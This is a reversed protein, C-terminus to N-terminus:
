KIMEKFEEESIIQVGLKNAKDLKSGAEEGALVYTTKKSVSSSTKGGFSEIIKSAEARKLTPLTGTLVFTMGSFRTDEVVNTSKMNVGAEKLKEILEKTSDSSFFEVVSEAMIKGFGDIQLIDDVSANMVLDIDKFYDAILKGAKAGIHRIGLAFILKSLDNNKSNNVSNIINNASTEKFGELSLIKNFDLNYIDYTKAIMGENVFTEIIAPGLGEIDMADRSCFHILNRLLQAPCEPNICRIAAEDEDRYVKEGCSPCVDPFKFVSNSNHENVCLVEPIIDGAKRVTVVDGIAIGKENIFDQNHLTARSVTTGALHVSELIATPTLVGTRGVAIEIDLLKTQKEEPPYKFAIAWKPYKATSGLIDRQSFDDVKIVAGDIDYELSGRAEGIRDIEAIADEINDVKKYTPITNFGLEKIFDLSEKHSSLEVGEIQQINFVFIDLGRSATVSSDKQRLSGAAANRPNKFPKEGNIIQRDVVREFSKKPMYVEGRVEIYPISKNLKLPINHIVRLNGSVDEGVDGNGRTSGRLFVGDRYELSVSLGDIKPEVVYNVDSVTDEVRNSFERLEDKSFADQLSEMRVSHAVSEFSNDAVGGVKKTPSDPADYEPYKEELEKLERMMMDYEYDEIEPADDNYYRDSHYRLTKRLEEIKKEIETMSDGIFLILKIKDCLTYIIM